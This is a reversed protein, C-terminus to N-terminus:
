CGNGYPWEAPPAGYPYNPDAEPNDPDDPRNPWPEACVDSWHVETGTVSDKVWVVPNANIIVLDRAEREPIKSKLLQSGEYLKWTGTLM